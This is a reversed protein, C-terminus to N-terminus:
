RAAVQDTGRVARAGGGSRMDSDSDGGLELKSLLQEATDVVRASSDSVTQRMDVIFGTIASHPAPSADAAM